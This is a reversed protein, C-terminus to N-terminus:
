KLALFLIPMFAQYIGSFRKKNMQFSVIGGVRINKQLKPIISSYFVNGHDVGTVLKTGTYGDFLYGSFPLWRFQKRSPDRRKKQMLEWVQKWVEIDILEQGDMQHNKILDGKSNYM